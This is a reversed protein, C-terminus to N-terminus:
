QIYSSSLTPAMQPALGEMYQQMYITGDLHARLFSSPEEWWGFLFLLEYVLTFPVLITKLIGRSASLYLCLFADALLQPAQSWCLTQFFFSVTGYVKELLSGCRRNDKAYAIVWVRMLRKMHLATDRVFACTTGSFAETRKEVIAGIPTM